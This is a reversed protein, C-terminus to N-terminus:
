IGRKNKFNYGRYLALYEMAKWEDNPIKENAAYPTFFFGNDDKYKRSTLLALAETEKPDIIKKM